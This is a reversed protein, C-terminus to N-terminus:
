SWLGVTAEFAAAVDAAIGGPALAARLEAPSPTRHDEAWALLKTMQDAQHPRREGWRRAATGRDTTWTGDLVSVVGAAAFLTKRAVPRAAITGARWVALRIGIDGNFGRAARADGPFPSRSRVADPGALPLCYHRLFVRNGYEQDTDGLYDGATGRGIAVGRCLAAFRASLDRETERCWKEPADIALLDVDSRGRRATGTAVSGYLHLEASEDAIATFAHLAAAIVPEFDSPVRDRSAGTRITGDANLGELPDLMAAADWADHAAHVFLM